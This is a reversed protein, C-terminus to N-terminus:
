SDELSFRVPIRVQSEVQLGARTAPAFEWRKVARRAARDLVRYGSSSELDVDDVLGKASVDVLLWVVGEWHRQRAIYPYEPLPNNRYNPMAEILVGGTLGADQSNHNDSDDAPGDDHQVVGAGQRPEATTGDPLAAAKQGAISAVEDLPEPLGKRPEVRVPDTPVLDEEPQEVVETLKTVPRSKTPTVHRLKMVPLTPAVQPGTVVAQPKAAVQRHAPAAELPASVASPSADAVPVLAVVVASRGDNATSPKSALDYYTVGGHIGASVLLCLSLRLITPMATLKDLIM